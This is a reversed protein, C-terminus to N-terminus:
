KGFGAYMNGGVQQLARAYAQRAKMQQYWRQVHTYSKLDVSTVDQITMLSCAITDAITLENGAIFAHQSLAKDLSPVQQALFGDAEKLANADPTQKLMGPKIVEEFFYVTLWRGIHYGFMDVWENIHARQEATNAYLKNSNIEAMLRCISNSEFFHQGKYEVAPVKGLPHRALHEPSKHEGPKMLHLQYPLGIEEATFLLKTLNFTPFSYIHMM